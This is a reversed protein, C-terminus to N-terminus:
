YTNQQNNTTILHVLSFISLIGLVFTTIILIKAVTTSSRAKDYKMNAVQSRSILAAVIAGIGFPFCWFFFIATFIAPLIYDDPAEIRGMVPAQQLQNNIVTSQTFIMQGPARSMQQPMSQNYGYEGSVDSFGATQPQYPQQQLVFGQPNHQVFQQVHEKQPTSEQQLSQQSPPSYPPLNGMEVKTAAAAQIEQGTAM